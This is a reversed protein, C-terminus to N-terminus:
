RITDHPIILRDCAALWWLSSPWMVIGRATLVVAQKVRASASVFSFYFIKTPV